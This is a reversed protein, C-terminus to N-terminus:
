FASRQQPRALIPVRYTRLTSSSSRSSCEPSPQKASAVVGVLVARAYQLGSTEVIGLFMEIKGAINIM